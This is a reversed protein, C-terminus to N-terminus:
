CDQKVWAAYCNLGMGTWFAQPRHGECLDLRRPNSVLHARKLTDLTVVDILDDSRGLRHFPHRGPQLRRILVPGRSRRSTVNQHQDPKVVESGVGIGHMPEPLLVDHRVCYVFIALSDAPGELGLAISPIAGVVSPQNLDYRITTSRNLHQITVACDFRAVAFKHNWGVWRSGGERRQRVPAHPPVQPWARWEGMLPCEGACTPCRRSRDSVSM